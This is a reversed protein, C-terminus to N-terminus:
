VRTKATQVNKAEARDYEDAAKELAAAYEDIGKRFLEFQQKDDNFAAHFAQQAEGSWSSALSQESTSLSDVATKFQTNYQRLSQAKSRLQSSTVMISSAM